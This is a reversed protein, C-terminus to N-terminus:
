RTERPSESSAGLNPAPQNGENVLGHVRQHRRRRHICQAPAPRGDITEVPPQVLGLLRRTNLQPRYGDHRQVPTTASTVLPLVRQQPGQAGTPTHGTIIQVRLDHVREDGVPRLIALQVVSTPGAHAPATRQLVVDCVYLEYGYVGARHERPEM